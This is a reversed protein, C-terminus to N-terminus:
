NLDYSGIQHNVSRITKMQHFIQKNTFLMKKYDEHKIEKNIVVKKIGKATRAEKEKDKVYSYMKSRLGVFEKMPNGCAEDKFKEM